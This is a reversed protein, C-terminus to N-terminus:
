SIKDDALLQLPSIADGKDTRGERVYTRDGYM